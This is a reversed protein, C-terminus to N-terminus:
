ATESGLLFLSLHHFADLFTGNVNDNPGMAKQRLVNLELIQAQEDHILLLTKAHGVFLLELTQLRVHVHKRKRRCWNRSGQM